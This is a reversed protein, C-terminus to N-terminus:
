KPNFIIIDENWKGDHIEYQPTLFFITYLRLDIPDKHM